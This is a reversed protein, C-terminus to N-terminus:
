AWGLRRQLVAQEAPSATLELARRDQLTEDRTVHQDETVQPSETTERTAVGLQTETEHCKKPVPHAVRVISVEM